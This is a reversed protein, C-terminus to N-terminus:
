PSFRIFFRSFTSTNFVIAFSFPYVGVCNAIAQTFVYPSSRMDNTLMLRLDLSGSFICARPIVKVGSSIFVSFVLKATPAIAPPVYKCRYYPHYANAATTLRRM